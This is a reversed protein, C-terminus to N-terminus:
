PAMVPPSELEQQAPQKPFHLPALHISVELESALLLSEFYWELSGPTSPKEANKEFYNKIEQFFPRFIYIYELNVKDGCLLLELIQDSSIVRKGWFQGVRASIGEKLEFTASRITRITRINEGELGNDWIHWIPAEVSSDTNQRAMIAKVASMMSQEWEELIPTQIFGICGYGQSTHNNQNAPCDKCKKRNKLLALGRRLAEGHPMSVTRLDNTAIVKRVLPHPEGNTDLHPPGEELHKVLTELKIPTCTLIVMEEFTLKRKLRCPYAIHYFFLTSEETCLQCQIAPTTSTTDVGPTTEDLTGPSASKETVEEEPYPPPIPNTSNSPPLSDTDNDLPLAYTIANDPPPTTTTTPTPDGMGAWQSTQKREDGPTIDLIRTGNEIGEM